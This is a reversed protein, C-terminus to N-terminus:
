FQPRASLGQPETLGVDAFGVKVAVDMALVMQQYSVPEATTSEAAIEINSKDIFFASGKQTKLVEELKAWDYGSAIKPIVTFDGVRSVGVWIKDAQILVSLEPDDKPEKVQDRAKGATKVDLSAINVWVATVLLFATLCSMLDIFPIINLEVNVSGKQDTGIAAGM